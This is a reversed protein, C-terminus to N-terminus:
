KNEAEGDGYPDPLEKADTAGTAMPEVDILESQKNTLPNREFSVNINIEAEEHLEVAFPLRGESSERLEKACIPDGAVGKKALGLAIADAWVAGPKLLEIQMKQGGAKVANLARRMVEPIPSALLRENAESLVRKRRGGPNGSQGPVFPKLNALSRESPM